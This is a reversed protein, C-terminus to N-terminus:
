MKKKKKSYKKYFRDLKRKINNREKIEKLLDEMPIDHPKTNFYDQYDIFFKKNEEVADIFEM